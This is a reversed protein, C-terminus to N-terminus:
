QQIPVKILASLGAYLVGLQWDSSFVKQVPCSKWSSVPM